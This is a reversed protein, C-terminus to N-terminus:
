TAEQFSVEEPMTELDKPNLNTKLSVWQAWEQVKLTSVEELMIAQPNSHLLRLAVLDVLAELNQDKLHRLWEL